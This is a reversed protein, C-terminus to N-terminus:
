ALVVSNGEVKFEPRSKLFAGVKTTLGVPKVNGVHSMSAKGGKEKLLGKIAKVWAEEPSAPEGEDDEDGSEEDSESGSEDDDEDDDDEASAGRAKSSAKKSQLLLLLDYSFVTTDSILWLL